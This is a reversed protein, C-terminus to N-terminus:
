SLIRTSTRPPYARLEGLSRHFLGMLLGSSLGSRLRRPVNLRILFNHMPVLHQDEPWDRRLALRKEGFEM